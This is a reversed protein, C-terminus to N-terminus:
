NHNLTESKTVIVPESESDTLNTFENNTYLSDQINTRSNDPTVCRKKDLNCEVIPITNTLSVVPLSTTTKLTETLPPSLISKTSQASSTPGLLGLVSTLLGSMDIDSTKKETKSSTTPSSSPGLLSSLLGSIDINPTKDAGASPPNLISAMSSITTFVSSLDNAPKVTPTEVPKNKQESCPTKFIPCTSAINCKTTIPTWSIPKSSEYMSSFRPCPAKFTNDLGYDFDNKTNYGFLSKFLNYYTQFAKTGFDFGTNLSFIRLAPEISDNLSKIENQMMCLDASVSGITEEIDSLNKNLCYIQSKIDHYESLFSRWVHQIAYTGIAGGILLLSLDGSSLNFNM